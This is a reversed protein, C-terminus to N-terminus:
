SWVKGEGGCKPCEIAKPKYGPAGEQLPSVKEYAMGTGQCVPCTVRTHVEKYVHQVNPEERSPERYQPRQTYGGRGGYSRNLNQAGKGVGGLFSRFGKFFKYRFEKNGLILGVLVGLGFVIYTGIDGTM